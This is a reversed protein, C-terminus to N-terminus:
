THSARARLRHRRDLHATDSTGRRTPPDGGAGIMVQCSKHVAASDRAWSPPNQSRGQRASRSLVDRDARERRDAVVRKQGVALRRRQDRGAAIDLPQTQRAHVRGAHEARNEVTVRAAKADAGGVDPNGRRPAVDGPRHHQLRAPLRAHAPHDHAVSEADAGPAVLLFPRVAVPARRGVVVGVVHQQPQDLAHLARRLDLEIALRGEVVAPQGGVPGVGAGPVVLRHCARLAHVELQPQHGIQAEAELARPRPRPGRQVLALDREDREAPRLNRHGRGVLLGLGPHRGRTAEPLLPELM